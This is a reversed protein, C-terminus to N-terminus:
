AGLIEAIRKAMAWAHDWGAFTKGLAIPEHRGDSFVLDVHIYHGESGGTVAWAAPWRVNRPFPEDMKAEVSFSALFYEDIFGEAQLVAELRTLVSRYTPTSVFKLYGPREPDPVWEELAIVATDAM